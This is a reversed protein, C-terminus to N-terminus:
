APAKAVLSAPPPRSPRELATPATARLLFRLHPATQLDQRVEIARAPVPQDKPQQQDWAQLFGSVAQASTAMGEIPVAGGRDVEIKSLSVESSALDALRLMWQSPNPGPVAVTRPDGASEAELREAQQRLDALLATSPAKLARAQQLQRELTSREADAQQLRGQLDRGYLSLGGVALALALAALPLSRDHHPLLREADFPEIM